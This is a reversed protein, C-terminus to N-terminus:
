HSEFKNLLNKEVIENKSGKKDSNLEINSVLLSMSKQPNLFKKRKAIRQSHNSGGNLKLFDKSIKKKEIKRNRKEKM